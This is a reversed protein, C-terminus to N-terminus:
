LIILTLRIPMSLMAGPYFKCRSWKKVDLRRYHPFQADRKEDGDRFRKLKAFAYEIAVIGLL